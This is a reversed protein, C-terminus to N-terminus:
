KGICFDRFIVDLLDEVDVRGTIRGLAQIAVRIDEAALEPLHDPTADLFRSLNMRCIMLERRHRLRTASPAATMGALSKAQEILYSVLAEVGEGTKASLPLLPVDLSLAWEPLRGAPNLDTKTLVIASPDSIESNHDSSLPDHGDIVAIRLDAEALRARARNVGEKEVGKAAGRLGATDTLIVPIGELDLHVELVDRTTGAEDSVIAVDRRALVNLLTSKGSNPAGALVIRIGERLREARPAETLHQTIATQLATLQPLVQARTEDPTDEDPFEVSLELYALSRILTQRWDEYLAGLAGSLQRQAQRRQQETDASILDSLGEVQTLDMKGNEFARRTFEGPTAMRLGTLGSLVELLRDIVARSGHCHLEVVDEGTFSHPAPFFLVIAQDIIEDTGPVCLNSLAAQRAPPMNVQILSLLAASAEPGSIRIMAVGARGPLTSLAFITDAM